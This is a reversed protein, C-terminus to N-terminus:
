AGPRKTVDFLLQELREAQARRTRTHAFVRGRKGMAAARRPDSALAAIAAALSEPDEPPVAVGAGSRELLRPAEGAASVIVPRGAAMYDIMKSPVFSEFTPHGSLPVLLADSAALLPPIEEMPVQPHFHVNRLDLRAVEARLAGKVPGDGVLAFHVDPVRRAAELVSPLAQAIGLM